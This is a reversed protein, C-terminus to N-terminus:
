NPWLRMVQDHPPERKINPAFLYGDHEITVPTVQGKQHWDRAAELYEQRQGSISRRVQNGTRAWQMGSGAGTTLSGSRLRGTYAVVPLKLFASAGLLREIRGLYESDAAVRVPDFFGVNKVVKQRDIMLSIAALRAKAGDIYLLEGSTEDVRKWRVTCASAGTKQMAGLQLMLRDPDSYDDSDHFTVFPSVDGALAWNKAAYTGRNYATRYVEMRADSRALETLIDPTQDTSADDVVVLRLNHHSQGLVSHVAEAVTEAANYATMIVTVKTGAARQGAARFSRARLGHYASVFPQIIHRVGM